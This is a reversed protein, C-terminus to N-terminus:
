DNVASIITGELCGFGIKYHETECYGTIIVSDGDELFTREAGSNLKIPQTGNFSIELLSGWNERNPGSITGTGLLDGPKMICHNVTHHALIQEMSWYLETPTTECITTKISSGKPKIEVKLKIDPLKPAAQKLYDVSEPMQKPLPAMVKQLAELPVVWPSISTAFSKSLFPGLPQYEFSQIDRASWDNLLVLGFIHPSANEVNIRRGDPNGTGIFIGMELEFDLKNTPAFIPKEIDPMKIQGKPRTIEKGSVFVTSARGNYGVPLFKWNPLLANEKGRFLKGVNTAHHESAYFDSFGEIKFPLLMRVDCQPILSNLLLSDNGQLEQNDTSLLSQIRRRVTNWVTQGQSAFMNLSGHSFLSQDVGSKLLGENELLTLDLVYNGIAAGIHPHNNDKHHFVGYPLNYIPFVSESAGKIFSELRPISLEM